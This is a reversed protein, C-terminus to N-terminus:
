LVHRTEFEILMNLNQIESLDFKGEAGQSKILHDIFNLNAFYTM